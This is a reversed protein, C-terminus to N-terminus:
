FALGNQMQPLTSDNPNYLIRIASKDVFREWEARTPVHFSATKILHAFQLNESLVRCNQVQSFTSVHLTIKKLLVGGNQVQSLM